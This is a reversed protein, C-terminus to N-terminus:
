PPRGIWIRLRPFDKVGLKEIISNIGNQGGSSGASRVRISGFPLDMDDYLVIMHDLPVKYFNVYSTVAQGSLNMFTQPKVLTIKNGAYTGSGWMAKFQVRTLRIDLRKALADVAKFGVNHRNDRYQQGPNGLGFILYHQGADIDPM